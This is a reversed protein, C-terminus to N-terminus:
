KEIINDRILVVSNLKGNSFDFKLLNSFATNQDIKAQSNISKVGFQHSYVIEYNEFVVLSFGALNYKELQKDINLSDTLFSYDREKTFVKKNTQGNAITVILILLYIINKM